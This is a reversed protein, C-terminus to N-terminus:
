EKKPQGAGAGLHTLFKNHSSLILRTDDRFSKKYAELSRLFEYFEPSKAYADGAIKIVEADARGRIEASKQEM